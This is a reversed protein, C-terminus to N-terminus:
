KLSDLVVYVKGINKNTDKGLQVLKSDSERLSVLKEEICQLHEKVEEIKKLM